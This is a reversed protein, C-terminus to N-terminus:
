LGTHTRVRPHTVQRVRFDRPETLEDLARELDLSGQAGFDRHVDLPEHVDAAIAANPMATTERDTPLARMGVGARLLAWTPGDRALLLHRLLLIVVGTVGAAGAAGAAGAGTLAAFFPLFITSLSPTAWMAAVNLLRSMVIVSMFPLVRTPPEAPLAPNRPERLHVAKAAVMTVTAATEPADDAILSGLETGRRTIEDPTMQALSDISAVTADHDFVKPAVDKMSGDLASLVRADLRRAAIQAGTDIAALQAAKGFLEAARATEGRETLAQAQQNVTQLKKGIV